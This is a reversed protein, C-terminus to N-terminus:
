EPIGSMDIDDANTRSLEAKRQEYLPKLKARDEASLAKLEPILAQLAEPSDVFRIRGAMADAPQLPAGEDLWLKLIAVLAPIEERAFTQGVAIASCRTKMVVLTSTDRDLDIVVDFEYETDERAVPALGVKKPVQKGREDAELVYDSKSRLTAIVHGPYNQIRDVLKNVKPSVKKWGGSFKSAGPTADVENLAGIWSHSYSDVVLVGIKESAAEAIKLMFGDPNKTEINDHLFRWNGPGEPTGSKQAYKLASGRESDMLAPLDAFLRAIQLATYTKGAGSLGSLALRLKSASREAVKFAM